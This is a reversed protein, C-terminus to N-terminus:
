KATNNDAISISYKDTLYATTDALEKPSLAKNYILLEALDGHFFLEKWAHRGIIKRSTIAQPAFAKAEGCNEGNIFMKSQGHSYDYVYSVVVPVDAGVQPADVRGSEVTASGVFGAFVQGTLLTPKFEEALLPEGIQLVGPHLTNSLFGNAERSPPGDYNLIQGGWRRKPDYSQSSFQCVCLVTQDDTTELPTTVLYNSKGDFRVAPHGHLAEPVLLPRASEENQTADEGSRNDGYLIDPWTVVRQHSDIQVAADAALWLALKSPVLLKSPAAATRRVAMLLAFQQKDFAIDSSQGSPLQFQMANDATVHIVDSHETSEKRAQSCLVEGEFVHLETRGNSGVSIGFATGLDVFDVGPSRIAFSFARHPVNATIKGSRLVGVMQSEAVFECPGQLVVEAGCEFTVKAMGSHLAIHSGKSLLQGPHFETARPQWVGDVLQTLTAVVDTNDVDRATPVESLWSNTHQRFVWATLGLLVAAAAGALWWRRSIFRLSSADRRAREDSFLLNKAGSTQKKSAATLQSFARKSLGPAGQAFQDMIEHLASETFLESIQRHLLCWRSFYQAFENDSLLRSELRALEDATVTGDLYRSLLLDFESEASM